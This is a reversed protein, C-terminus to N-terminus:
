LFYSILVVLGVGVSFGASVLDVKLKQHYFYGNM